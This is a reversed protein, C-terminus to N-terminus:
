LDTSRWGGRKVGCDICLRARAGCVYVNCVSASCLIGRFSPTGTAPIIRWWERQINHTYISHYFLLRSSQGAAAAGVLRVRGGVDGRVGVAAATAM